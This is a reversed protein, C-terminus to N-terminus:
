TEPAAGLSTGVRVLTEVGRRSRACLDADYRVSGRQFVTIVTSGGYLFYGLEQGQLPAHWAGLSGM